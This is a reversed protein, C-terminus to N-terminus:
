KRSAKLRQLTQVKGMQDVEKDTIIRDARLVYMYMYMYMYDGGGMQKGLAESDTGIEETKRWLQVHLNEKVSQLTKKPQM